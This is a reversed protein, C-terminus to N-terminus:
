AEETSQHAARQWQPLVEHRFTELRELVRVLVVKWENTSMDRGLWVAKKSVRVDNAVYRQLRYRPMEELAPVRIRIQGSEITVSKVAARMALVKIRLQYLLNDVPDPIPGFRDALEEAMEDVEELSNLGAMRRYLRLRLSGDPVYDPPIYAALPLDITTPEPLEAVPPGGERAAKRQRVAQALMRTYLDFGIAAIHGSQRPGLLEGAGRIELDRMAINYGAGLETEEAITTLRQRAEETLSPWPGHFFYAYARRTGRGIRGRLQYLQSLGFMEARDVILTNANPIDLGSEIISTSLLLDIEGDVFADMVKELERESMQGHAVATKAEPVLKRVLKHVIGITQVRNHVFFIQGGRDLERLIARRLLSDDAQGVYVQVPLRESPATDIISIDRAGTLGMYLTRPIPTATLTLVDVETRLQKLREKDSVGFRQEEDIIVLGLDRFSVDESLLRHTGIVIDILGARLHQLIQEQEARTRFRSLMEVNVPFPQMRQAFTHYHQQALVTTPVLVAVQKGDTVAKFAARLAVETKGYGVDGCILRDMPQPSEMDDKVAAIARLQDETEQYPFGAELEAMWEGDVAFAHGDISERAAYLELLEDALEAIEQQAKQKTAMWSRGGIRNLDPPREDSGIWKSLRDAHHVPVYIMDGNAYQVQLYERETGGLARVVLGMFRGIGYDLHVIYDGPALDAYPAEPASPRARRYRRPAPRKWGFVEADTLLHLLVENQDVQELTFGELLSGRVFTITGPEPLEPVNEVIEWPVAEEFVVSTDQRRDDRWLDALRQAQSSVVVAPEEDRVAQRLHILFPRVQGGFRPGPRFAAALSAHAVPSPGEPGDGLVIVQQLGLDEILEEWDFLPNPYDPPLEPQDAAIQAAHEHLEAVARELEPWDDVAVLGSDPLYDLLGSPKSYIMPLYFEINPSLRGAVMDPIDDQWAPLEDVKPEAVSELYSGLGVVRGPLAEHAPPILIHELLGSEVDSSRQTAPDFYRMTEVEEGFLEIRVPYTSTAPYLDVIGGRQSYQGPAEVVSVREYGIDSWMALTEDLDLLAGARLVRMSALFRRRSLTKQLLARASTVIVLPGTQAPLLPHQGAVLRALVTLRGLRSAESWPARDYPLPTPEAFRLLECEAPLWAELAQQWIPVADVRGSVLLIPKQVQRALGALVAHRAGRSLRLAPPDAGQAVQALLREYPPLRDLIDLIESLNM